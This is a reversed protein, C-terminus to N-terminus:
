PITLPHAGHWAPGGAPPAVHLTRRALGQVRQTGLQGGWRGPSGAWGASSRRSTTLTSRCACPAALPPVAAAASQPPQTCARLRARLLAAPLAPQAAPAGMHTLLGCLSTCAVRAGRQRGGAGGGVQKEAEPNTDDFRLYCVGDYQAAMGFDVFM